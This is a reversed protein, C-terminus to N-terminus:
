KGVADLLIDIADGENSKEIEDDEIILRIAKLATDYKDRETTVRSLESTSGSTPKTTPEATKTTVGENENM